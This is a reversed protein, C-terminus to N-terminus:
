LEEFNPREEGTTGEKVCVLCLNNPLEPIFVFEGVNYKHETKHRFYGSICNPHAEADENHMAIDGVSTNVQNYLVDLTDTIKVIADIISSYDMASLTDVNLTPVGLLKLIGNIAGVMSTYGAANMEELEAPDSSSIASIANTLSIIASMINPHGLTQYTVAYAADSDIDGIIEIIKRDAAALKRLGDAISDYGLDTLDAGTVQGMGAALGQLDRTLSDIANNINTFNTNNVTQSLNLDDINATMASVKDSFDLVAHSLSEYGDTNLQEINLESVGVFSDLALVAKIITDYKAVLNNRDNEDSSGIITVLDNIDDRIQTYEDAATQTDEIMYDALKKDIKILADIVNDWNMTTFVHNVDTDVGKVIDSLEVIANHM